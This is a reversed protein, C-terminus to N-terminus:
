FSARRDLPKDALTITGRTIPRRRAQGATPEFIARSAGSRRDYGRGTAPCRLYQAQGAPAPATYVGGRLVFLQRPNTPVSVARILPPGSITVSNVCRSSGTGISGVRRRVNPELPPFDDDNEVLGNANGAPSSASNRSCCFSPLRPRALINAVVRVHGRRRNQGAIAGLALSERADQAFESSSCSVPEAFEERAIRRRPFQIADAIPREFFCRAPQAPFRSVIEQM